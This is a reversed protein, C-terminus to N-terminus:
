KLVYFDISSQVSKQFVILLYSQAIAAAWSVSLSLPNREGPTEGPSEPERHM